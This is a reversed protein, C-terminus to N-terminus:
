WTRESSLANSVNPSCEHSVSNTPSESSSWVVERQSKALALFDQPELSSRPEPNLTQGAAWLLQVLTSDSSASTALSVLPTHTQTHTHTHTHTEPWTEPFSWISILCPLSLLTPGWSMQSASNFSRKYMSNFYSGAICSRHFYIDVLIKCMFNWLLVRGLLWDSAWWSILPHVFQPMDM